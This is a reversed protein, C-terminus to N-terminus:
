KQDKNDEAHNSHILHIPIDRRFKGSNCIEVCSSYSKLLFQSPNNRTYVYLLNLNSMEIIFSDSLKKKYTNFIGPM